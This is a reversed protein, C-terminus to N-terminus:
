IIDDNHSVKPNIPLKVTFTSGIGASSEVDITGQNLEVIKKVISLGLGTSIKSSRSKDVQYFRDYIYNLKNKPIGIGEDQVSLIFTDDAKKTKITIIGENSYKIANSIFNSLIMKITSYDLILPEKIQNHYILSLHKEKALPEFLDMSEKVVAKVDLEQYDLSVKTQDLRSLELIDNIINQMRYSEKLLIDMFENFIEPSEMGDRKLIEVSGIIASMPTKLEHSVDSLFQKQMDEIEKMKSVDTFLVITGDFILKEHDSFVPSSEVQYYRSQIKVVTSLPREFVYCQEVLDLMEGVFIDKYYRGKLHPIEFGKRFSQNTFAIKGEKDVFLMPLNMSRILQSLIKEHYKNEIEVEKLENDRERQMFRGMRQYHKELQYANVVYILILVLMILISYAKNFYTLLLAIFGLVLVKISNNTM